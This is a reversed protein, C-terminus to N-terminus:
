LALPGTAKDFITQANRLLQTAETHRSQLGYLEALENRLQAVELNEIGFLKEKIAVARLLYREAEAIRNQTVCLAALKALTNAIEYHEDEYASEIIGIAGRYFREAEDFKKRETMQDALWIMETATAPHTMGQVRMRIELSQSALQEAEAQNGRRRELTSLDHYVGAVQASEAGFSQGSSQQYNRLARWYYKAAADFEGREQHLTAMHHQVEATEESQKGFTAQASNLARRLLNEAEQYRGQAQYLSGLRRLVVPRLTEMEPDVGTREVLRTLRQFLREIKAAKATKTTTPFDDLEQCITVLQNLFHALRTLDVGDASELLELSNMWLSKAQQKDASKRSDPRLNGMPTLVICPMTLTPISMM